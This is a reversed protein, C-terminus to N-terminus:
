FYGNAQEGKLYEKIFGTIVDSMTTKEKITKIRFAEKLEDEIRINMLIKEKKESEEEM